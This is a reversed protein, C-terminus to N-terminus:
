VAWGVRGGGGLRSVLTRHTSNSVGTDLRYRSRGEATGESARRVMAQHSM